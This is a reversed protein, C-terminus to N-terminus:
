GHRVVPPLPTRPTPPSAPRPGAGVTELVEWRVRPSGRRAYIRRTSFRFPQYFVLLEARRQGHSVDHLVLDPRLELVSYDFDWKVHGPAFRVAAKPRTSIRARQHAIRRDCRGLLDHCARDCFYPTAGAWGVAVLARDTTAAQVMEALEVNVANSTCNLAPESLAWETGASPGFRNSVVLCMVVLAVAAARAVLALFRRNERLEAVARAAMEGVGVSLLVFFLPMVTTIYRNAGGWWEWADGGVYISYACQTLFLTLLLLRGRDRRWTLPLLGLALMWWPAHRALEVFCLWGRLMRLSAPYGTMKLYYTNPLPDGYYLLGFVVQSGVALVIMVAGWLAHRWKNGRDAVAGFLAMAALLVCADMRVLTAVGLLLYPLPSFTAESPMGTEQSGPYARGVLICASAVVLLTLVSVEMGQLSWNNLPLYFATLAAASLAAFEGSPRASGGALALALRRIYVLAILVCVAGSVQIPLSTLRDPIPLLHFLSMYLTWLPATFGQVREGGPNWVLGYGHALNKAYRMSIMGDDFLCFYRHGGVLFSTRYIFGAAYCCYGVLIIIFLLRYVAPRDRGGVHLMEAAPASTAAPGTEM